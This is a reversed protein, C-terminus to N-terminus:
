PTLDFDMDQEIEVGGFVLGTLCSVAGGCYWSISAGV